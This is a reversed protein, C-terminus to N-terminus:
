ASDTNPAEDNEENHAETTDGDCEGIRHAADDGEAGRLGRAGCEVQAVAWLDFGDLASFWHAEIRGNCQHLHLGQVGIHAANGNRGFAIGCPTHRDAAGFVTRNRDSIDIWPVCLYDRHSVGGRITRVREHCPLTRQM